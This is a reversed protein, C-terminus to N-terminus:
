VSKVSLRKKKNKGVFHVTCFGFTSVGFILTTSLLIKERTTWSEDIPTNVAATIKRPNVKNLKIKYNYVVENYKVSITIENLGSISVRGTGTTEIDEGEVIIYLDSVGDLVDISYSYKDPSFLIEYGVIEFKTINLKKEEVVEEQPQEAVEENQTNNNINNKNNYNSNNNTNTNNTAPQSPEPKNDPVVPRESVTVTVVQNPYTTIESDYDTIDGSLTITYTGPRSTDLTYSKNTTVNADEDYGVISASVSGTVNLNWAGAFVNVNITVNDGVYANTTSASINASAAYVKTSTFVFLTMIFLIIYKLKINKM